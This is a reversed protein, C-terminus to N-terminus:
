LGPIRETKGDKGKVSFHVDALSESNLLSAFVDQASKLIEEDQEEKIEDKTEKEDSLSLSFCSFLSSPFPPFFLSFLLLSLYPCVCHLFHVFCAIFLLPFM